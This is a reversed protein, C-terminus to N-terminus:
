LDKRIENFNLIAILKELNEKEQKARVGIGPVKDWRLCLFLLGVTISISSCCGVATGAPWCCADMPVGAYSGALGCICLTGGAYQQYKDINFWGYEELYEKRSNLYTYTAECVRSLDTSIEKKGYSDVKHRIREVMKYLGAQDGWATLGQSRIIKKNVTFQPLLKHTITEITQQDSPIDKIFGVIKIPDLSLAHAVRELPSLEMGYILPVKMVLFLILWVKYMISGIAISEDRKIPYNVSKKSSTFILNGNL